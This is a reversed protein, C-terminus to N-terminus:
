GAPESSLRPPAVPSPAPATGHDAEARARHRRRLFPQEVFRYSALAVLVALPLGIMWGFAFYLPWHWLYVGYSIRGLGRLWRRDILRTFWWRPELVCALLVVTACACFLPVLVLALAEVQLDLAFVAFAAPVLLATALTLPVRRVLGYSFLVGALCGLVLGDSRTEPAYFLYGASEGAVYSATRWTIVSLGLGGLLLVLTRPKVGARLGLWLGLPWALYFQEEHALSWMHQLNEADIGGEHIAAVNTVYFLSYLVWELETRFGDSALAAAVTVIGLMTVLAPLLRLARRRYFDRFSLRADRSWETLLLSTILFGSLVFFLDVGLVGGPLAYDTHVALVLLIAIGRLADLAPVQQLRVM